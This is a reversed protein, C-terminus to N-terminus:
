NGVYLNWFEELCIDNETIIRAAEEGVYRFHWPEYEISTINEKGKPYRLIFGYKYANKALWKGADTEAFGEDLSTYNDTNIDFALGIQHESSGPITVALSTEKYADMYSMGNKVYRNVKNDFLMTQRTSNRYPSCVNLKVGDSKAASIMKKLPAIVREDCKFGGNITGLTFDYGDPIPHQKNVLIIKWDDRSFAAKETVHEEKIETDPTEIEAIDEDDYSETEYIVVDAVAAESYYSFSSSIAFFMLISTLCTLKKANNYFLRGINYGIVVVVAYAVGFFGLLRHEKNFQAVKSIVKDEFALRSETNYEDM